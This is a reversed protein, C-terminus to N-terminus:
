VASKRNEYFELLDEVLIRWMARQAGSPRVDIAPLQGSDIWSQVTRRNVLMRQAVEEVKLLKRDMHAVVEKLEIRKPARPSTLRLYDKLSWDQLRKDAIIALQRSEPWMAASGLEEHCSRCVVLVAFLKDLARERFSGRCIEHIDLVCGSRGCIECRGVDERLRDRLKKVARDLKARKISKHRM